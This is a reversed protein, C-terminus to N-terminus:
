QQEITFRYVTLDGNSQVRVRKTAEDETGVPKNGNYLDQLERLRKINEDGTFQPQTLAAWMADLQAQPEKSWVLYFVETGTSGTFNNERTVIQQGADVRSSGGNLKPTPFLPFYGTKGDATKGENWLYFHGASKSDFVFAIGDGPAAIYAQRGIQIPTGVTETGRKRQVLMHYSIENAPASPPQAPSSNVGPLKATPDSSGLFNWALAGAVIALVAFAAGAAGIWKTPLGPADPITVVNPRLATMVEEGAIETQYMSVDDTRFSETLRAGRLTRALDRGFQRANQPRNESDFELASLLIAEAVEPIEPRLERPKIKLGEQQLKYMHIMTEPRFPLQGTLMEYAVVGASYIDAPPGLYVSGALQEPAIYRVTGIARSIETKPALTSEDVRAIGFDILRVRDYGGEQPTLMINEPKIDRHIIKEAHAASLADTVSEIYHAAVDLPLQRTERLVKRLSYGEIYEMVMFPNGDTLTGFDLIRVIGPHDLRMLAEEEHLFKRLIDKFKLAKEQLVKVVVRKNLMKLDRALYVVGIGGEDAGGDTLNKEIVFRGDLKTGVMSDPTEFDVSTVTNGAIDISQTSDEQQNENM